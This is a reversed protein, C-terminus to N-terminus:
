EDPLDETTTEVRVAKVTAFRASLGVENAHIEHTDATAILRGTAIVRTGRAVSEAVHEAQAGFVVVEYTSDGDSVTGDDDRHRATDTLQFRTVPMGSEGFSLGADATADGSVTISTSM